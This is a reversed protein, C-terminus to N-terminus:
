ILFNGKRTRLREDRVLNRIRVQEVRTHSHHMAIRFPSRNQFAGPLEYTCGRRDHENRWGLGIVLAIPLEITSRRWLKASPLMFRARASATARESVRSM